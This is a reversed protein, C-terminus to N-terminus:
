FFAAHAGRSFICINHSNTHPLARPDRKALVGSIKALTLTSLPVERGLEQMDERVYQYSLSLDKEGLATILTGNELACAWSGSGCLNAQELALRAREQADRVTKGIGIGATILYDEELDAIAHLQPKRQFNDTLAEMPGAREYITWQNASVKQTTGHLYRAYRHIASAFDAESVEDGEAHQILQM